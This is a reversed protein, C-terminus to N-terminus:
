HPTQGLFAALSNSGENINADVSLGQNSGSGALEKWGPPVINTAAAPVACLLLMAAVVGVLRNMRAEFAALRRSYRTFGLGSFALSIAHPADVVCHRLPQPGAVTGARKRPFTGQHDPPPPKRK